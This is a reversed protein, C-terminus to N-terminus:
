GATEGVLYFETDNSATEVVTDDGEVLGRGDYIAYEILVELNDDVTNLIEKLEGVTM